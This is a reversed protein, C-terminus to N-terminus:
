LHLIRAGDNAWREAMSKRLRPWMSASMDAIMPDSSITNPSISRQSPVASLFRRSQKTAPLGVHRSVKGDVDTSARGSFPKAQCVLVRILLECALCGPKCWLGVARTIQYGIRHRTVNPKKSAKRRGQGGNGACRGREHAM